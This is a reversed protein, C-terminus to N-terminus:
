GKQVGQYLHCSQKVPKVSGHLFFQEPELDFILRGSQCHGRMIDAAMKTNNVIMDRQKKSLGFTQSLYHYLEGQQSFDSDLKMLQQYTKANYHRIVELMGTKKTYNAYSYRGAADNDNLHTQKIQQATSNKSHHGSGRKLQGDTAALWVKTYDINGIRDQQSFIYDLLTIEILDKMWFVMQERTINKRRLAIAQSLPKPNKLASFAYTKQFDLSQGKGWGSKRSGNIEASYRKGTSRLLVGYIQKHDQTFVEDVPHYQSPKNEIMLMDKWANHIMGKHTLKLGVRSVRQRHTDKDISRYVAVPVHIQTNLYRSFHYYLLSATSFTGSTDKMNMTNKFAISKISIHRQNACAGSEFQKVSSFHSGKLPYFMTGPSTSWTKPCMGTNTYIDMACYNQEIQLDQESYIGEPIHKLVICQEKIGSPSVFESATGMVKDSANIIISHGLFLTTFIIKKM